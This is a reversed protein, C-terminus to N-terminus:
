KISDYKLNSHQTFLVRREVKEDNFNIGFLNAKNPTHRKCWAFPLCGGGPLNTLLRYNHIYRVQPQQDLNHSSTQGEYFRVTLTKPIDASTNKINLISKIGKWTNKISNWIAEFIILTIKSQKFIASLM